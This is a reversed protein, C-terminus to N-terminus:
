EFSLEKCLTTRFRKRWGEPDIRIIATTIEIGVLATEGAADSFALGRGTQVAADRKVALAGASDMTEKYLNFMNSLKTEKDQESSEIKQMRQRFGDITRQQAATRHM